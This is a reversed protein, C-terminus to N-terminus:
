EDLMNKGSRLRAEAREALHEYDAVLRLIMAKANAEHLREAMVRLEKARDRWYAPDNYEAIMGHKDALKKINRLLDSITETLLDTASCPNFYALV